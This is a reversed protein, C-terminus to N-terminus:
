SSRRTNLVLWSSTSSPRLCQMRSHRVYHERTM